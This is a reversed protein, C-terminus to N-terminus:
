KQKYINLLHKRIKHSFRFLWPGNNHMLLNYNESKIYTQYYIDRFALYKKYNFTNPNGSHKVSNLYSKIVLQDGFQLNKTNRDKEFYALVQANEPVWDASDNIYNVKLTTQFTNEKESLEEIVTAIFTQETQKFYPESEQRSKVLYIGFLFIFVSVLFGWFRNTYFYQTQNTFHLIYILLCILIAPIILSINIVPFIIQFVIGFILPLAFRLYPTQHLFKEFM